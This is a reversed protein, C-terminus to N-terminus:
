GDENEQTHAAPDLWSALRQRAQHLTAAVTGEALGMAAAVERQPLDALYHLVVATRQRDPLRRVADWIEAAPEPAPTSTAERRLLIAEVRARRATRRAINLAVTYTWGTPSEMASVRAWRALARAFAESCAEIAIDRDGTVVVLSRVVPGYEKSYWDAFSAGSTDRRDSSVPATGAPTSEQVVPSGNLPIIVSLESLITWGQRYTGDCQL